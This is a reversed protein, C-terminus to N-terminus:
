SSAKAVHLKKLIPQSENVLVAFIDYDNGGFSLRHDPTAVCDHPVIVIHTTHVELRDAIEMDKAEPSVVRGKTEEVVTWTYESGGTTTRSRTRQKVAVADPLTRLVTARM